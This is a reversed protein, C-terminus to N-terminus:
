SSFVFSAASWHYNDFQLKLYIGLLFPLRKWCSDFYRPSFSRTKYIFSLKRLSNPFVRCLSHCNPCGKYKSCSFCAFSRTHTPIPSPFKEICITDRLYQIKCSSALIVYSFQLSPQVGTKMRSCYYAKWLGSSGWIYFFQEPLTPSCSDSGVRERKFTFDSPKILVCIQSTFFGFLIYPLGLFNRKKSFM